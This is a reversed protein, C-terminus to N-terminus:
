LTDLKTLKFAALARERSEKVDVIPAPYDTGIEVGAARLVEAPALWPAHIYKAPMQALEPVYRRIYDGEKDFKESQTIPNFIRFFPADDAGCGAIWQWSASNAALDADVLCDWFWEEGRHWHILLNKVMFSGVVMRVRNHMYGTSYLERMGADVLPYGTRGQQWATLEAATDPAWPFVHFRPQLNDKPLQPFHYLLYHSFERWGLESLFTDISADNDILGAADSARHWATNASIQGFHLYASLRSVNLKNPFNRGERYDELETMVFEDLRDQAATESIDWREKMERDWAISPLLQLSDLSLSDKNLSVARLNAPIPLPRRPPTKSLCGRRYYPTFVKYPSEDKKLVQWPEWLLSGNYSDVTIDLDKLRSKINGDRVIRWPEYCRNWVVAAASTQKALQPLIQQPDGQFLNLKGSLSQNLSRLAHHLWWRSAGGMAWEGPNTDDLIYVPVIDGRDCAACLAPNDALRLDQRFWVITPNLHNNAFSIVVSRNNSHKTLIRYGLHKLNVRNLIAVSIVVM